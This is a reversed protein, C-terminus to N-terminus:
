INEPIQRLVSCWSFSNFSFLEASISLSAEASCSDSNYKLQEVDLWWIFSVRDFYNTLVREQIFLHADRRERPRIMDQGNQRTRKNVLTSGGVLLVESIVISCGKSSSKHGFPDLSMWANSSQLVCPLM